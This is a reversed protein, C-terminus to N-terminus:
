AGGSGAAKASGASGTSGAAGTAGAPAADSTSKSPPADDALALRPVGLLSAIAVVSACARRPATRPVRPFVSHHHRKM